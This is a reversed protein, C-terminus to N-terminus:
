VLPDPFDTYLISFNVLFCRVMVSSLENIARKRASGPLSELVDNKAALLDNYVDHFEGALRRMPNASAPAASSTAAATLTAKAPTKNKSARHAM